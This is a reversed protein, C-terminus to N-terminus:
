RRGPERAGTAKTKTLSDGLDARITEAFKSLRNVIEPNASAVDTKEGPDSTLDYLQAQTVKEQRYKAPIGGTAKPRGEMSRYSHPFVLKWQGNTVSQLENGAYYTAYGEHPNKADKEGVIIPWVNLGDIKQDPLKAGIQAAVTPLIDITSLITDTTTGAPIKGPWRMLCPVRTGGEWSTGKGERLQGSSGAHEGYSLWPGNDSTFIVWTNEAIGSRELASLVEGVSWDIEQMVDGYIGAGSKGSFKDSVYLPVHPMNHALYCFFPRDKNREIFAVVHETYRTTLLRQDEPTVEDDAVRDGDFLPLKPYTGGKAEPHHPWMDNSYPLGLWQDFGHHMPLLPAADGLHWKGSMSTTYGRSKALEAITTEKPNLGIKAGPGLAGHISVRNHYCGTLLAARSASCVASSVHFNTFKRGERAMRELNPTAVKGGFPSIDAYGMDDVFILVINPPPAAIARATLLAIGLLLLRLMSAPM